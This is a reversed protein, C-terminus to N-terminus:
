KAPDHISSPHCHNHPSSSPSGSETQPWSAPSALLNPLHPSGASRSHISVSDAQNLALSPIQENNFTGVPGLNFESTM